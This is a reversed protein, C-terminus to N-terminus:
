YRTLLIKVPMEISIWDGNIGGLSNTNAIYNGSSDYQNQLWEPDKSFNTEPSPAYFVYHPSYTTSSYHSSYKVNYVGNAYTNEITWTDPSVGDIRNFYNARAYASPYM